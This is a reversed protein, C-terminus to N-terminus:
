RKKRKKGGVEIRVPDDETGKGGMLEMGNSSLDDRFQQGIKKVGDDDDAQTFLNHDYESMTEIMAVKDTDKRIITKKGHQPKHFEVVCDIERYEWGDAVQNSLKNTTAKVENLRASYQSTVTKKEETLSSLEKTKKALELSLDHIEVASFDYRLSRKIIDPM